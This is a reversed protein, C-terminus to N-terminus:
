LELFWQSRCLFGFRTFCVSKIVFVICFSVFFVSGYECELSYLTGAADASLKMSTATSHFLPFTSNRTAGRLAAGRPLGRLAELKASAEAKTGHDSVVASLDASLNISM